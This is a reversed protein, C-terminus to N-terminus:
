EPFSKRATSGINKKRAKDLRRCSQILNCLQEGRILEVFDVDGQHISERGTLPRPQGQKRKKWTARAKGM